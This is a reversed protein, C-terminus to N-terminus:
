YHKELIADSGDANKLTGHKEIYLRRYSAKFKLIFICTMISALCASFLVGYVPDHPTHEKTVSCKSIRLQEASLDRQFVPLQSVVVLIFGMLQGCMWLIAASVGTNIPYTVEMALEMFIPLLGYGFFGFMSLFGVVPVNMHPHISVMIYGTMSLLAFVYCFKLTSVFKKTRDLYISMIAAGVLGTLSMAAGCWGTFKDSYGYPCLMQQILTIFVNFNGISVSWMAMMFLFTKNRFLQAIGQRFAVKVNRKADGSPSPPIDPRNKWIFLTLVFSISGVGTLVLLLTRFSSNYSEMDGLSVVINSPLVMGVALGVPNAMSCIMNALTRREQPFWVDAVKAPSYLGIPNALACLIQGALVLNFHGHEVGNMDLTPKLTSAFRLTSGTCNLIVGMWLAIGVGKTDMLWAWGLGTILSAAMYVSSLENVQSSRVNYFSQTHDAISVFTVWNVASSFNLAAASALVIWRLKSTAYQPQTEDHVSVAGNRSPQSISPQAPTLLRTDEDADMRTSAIAYEDPTQLRHQAM